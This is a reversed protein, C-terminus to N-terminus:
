EANSIFFLEAFVDDLRYEPDTALDGAMFGFGVAAGAPGLLKGSGKIFRRASMRIEVGPKAREAVKVLKAEQSDITQSPSVVEGLDYTKTGADDVSEVLSDMRERGPIDGDTAKGVAKNYTTRVVRRGAARAETRHQEAMLESAKDHGPTKTKQPNGIEVVKCGAVHVDDIRSGCGSRGSPDTRNLPDNYVYAYLNMDDEYGIPDTQMFRGLSPDYFRAKYYYLGLQPV